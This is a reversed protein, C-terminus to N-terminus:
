EDGDQLLRKLETLDADRTARQMEHLQAGCFSAILFLEFISEPATKLVIHQLAESATGFKGTKFTNFVVENWEESRATSNILLAGTLSDSTHDLLDFAKACEEKFNEKLIKMETTNKTHM